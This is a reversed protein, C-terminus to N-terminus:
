GFMSTTKGGGGVGARDAPYSAPAFTPTFLTDLMTEDAATTNRNILSTTDIPRQGGLNMGDAQVAQVQKVTGSASGGAAAGNLATAVKSIPVAETSAFQRAINRQRSSQEGTVAYAQGYVGDWLGAWAPM